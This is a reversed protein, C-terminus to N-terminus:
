GNKYGRIKDIPVLEPILIEAKLAAQRRSRVEPDRWNMYTFLVDFDIQEKAEEPSLIAAGSKNSVEPCLRVGEQLLISSEIELWIPDLIRGERKAHYLMPHDDIFALHVYEHVGKLRDADHSWQNGGPRPIEISRRELEGLSLLGGHTEILDLNSRDTFHWVSRIRYRTLISKM